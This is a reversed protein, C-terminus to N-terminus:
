QKVYILERKKAYRITGYQLLDTLNGNEDIIYANEDIEKEYEIFKNSSYKGLLGTGSCVANHQGIKELSSDSVGPYQTNFYTIGGYLDCNIRQTIYNNSYRNGNLWSTYVPEGTNGTSYIKFILNDINSINPINVISCINNNIYDTLNNKITDTKSKENQSARSYRAASWICSAVQAETNLDFRAVIENGEVITVGYGEQSYRYITPIIDKFEVIRKGNVDINDTNVTYDIYTTKDISTFIEDSTQRILSTMRFLVALAMSFVIVGFGMKFAEVANEM